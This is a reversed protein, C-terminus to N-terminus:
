IDNMDSTEENLSIARLRVQFLLESEFEEGAVVKYNKYMLACSVPDSQWERKDWSIGLLNLLGPIEGRAGASEPLFLDKCFGHLPVPDQTLKTYTLTKEGRQHRLTFTNNIQSRIDEFIEPGNDRTRKITESRADSISSQFQGITFDTLTWLFSIGMFLDRVQQKFALSKRRIWQEGLPDTAKLLELAQGFLRNQPLEENWRQKVDNYKFTIVEPVDWIPDGDYTSFFM